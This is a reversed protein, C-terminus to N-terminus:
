TCPMVSKEGFVNKCVELADAKSDIENLTKAKPKKVKKKLIRNLSASWDSGYVFLDELEMAGWMWIQLLYLRSHYLWM